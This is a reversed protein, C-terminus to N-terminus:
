WHRDKQGWGGGRGGDRRVGEQLYELAYPVTSLVLILLLVGSGDSARRSPPTNRRKPSGRLCDEWRYDGAKERRRWLGTAM